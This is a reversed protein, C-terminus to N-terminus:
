KIRYQIGYSIHEEASSQNTPNILRVCARIFQARRKAGAKIPQISREFARIFQARRKAKPVRSQNTLKEATLDWDWNPAWHLDLGLLTGLTLDAELTTL